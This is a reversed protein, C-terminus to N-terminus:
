THCEAVCFHSQFESRMCVNKVLVQVKDQLKDLEEVFVIRCCDQSPPILIDVQLLLSQPESPFSKELTVFSAMHNLRTKIVIEKSQALGCASCFCNLKFIM